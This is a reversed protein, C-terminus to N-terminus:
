LLEPQPDLSLSAAEPGRVAIGREALVKWAVPSVDSGVPGTSFSVGTHSAVPVIDSVPKSLDVDRVFVGNCTGSLPSRRGRVAAVSTHVGSRVHVARLRRLASPTPEGEVVAVFDIDSRGDRYAGLAV